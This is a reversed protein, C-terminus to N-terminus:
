THGRRIGQVLTYSRDHYGRGPNQGCLDYQKAVACMPDNSQNRVTAGAMVDCQPVISVGTVLVVPAGSQEDFYLHPRERRGHNVVGFTATEIARTYPEAGQSHWTLGDVSFGAGGHFICHFHNAKDVWLMPDEGQGGCLNVVGHVKVYPGTWTDASYMVFGGVNFVVFVTGNPHVFPAPNNGNCCPSLVASRYVWPGTSGAISVHMGLSCNSAHPQSVRLTDTDSPVASHLAPGAAVDDYGYSGPASESDNGLQDSSRVWVSWVSNPTLAKAGAKFLMAHDLGIWHTSMGFSECGSTNACVAALKPACDAWTKNCIASGEGLTEDCQGDNGSCYGAHCVYGPIIGTEACAVTVPGPPPPHPPSHCTAMCSSRNAYPGDGLQGGLCTGNQTDCRWLGCAAGKGGGQSAPDGCPTTGNGACMTVNHGSWQCSQSGGTGHPKDCFGTHFMLLTEDSVRITQPNSAWPPVVNERRQYPGEPRTSVVHTLQSNTVWTMLGCGGSGDAGPAWESLWMHYLGKEAVINGGWSSINPHMFGGGHVAFDVPLLDLETCCQGRWGPYCM